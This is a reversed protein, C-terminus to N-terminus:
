KKESGGPFPILVALGFVVIMLVMVTLDPVSLDFVSFQWATGEPIPPQLGNVM